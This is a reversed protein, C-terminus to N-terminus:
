TSKAYLLTRHFIWRTNSKQYSKKKKKKKKKIKLSEEIFQKIDVM